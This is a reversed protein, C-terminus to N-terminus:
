AASAHQRQALRALRREAEAIYDRTLPVAERSRSLQLQFVMLRGNRFGCEASALYFEWMRCFREGMLECAQARHAQFREWWARLTEAYHLRLIEVDTIWLGAREAAPMVQSLAPIYGGPFIYRDMWRDKSARPDSLGIGSGISHILAVGEEELLAAIKAFYTDLNHQGVHELMGVSVIRDYREPEDRYDRLAFRVKDAVNHRTARTNAAALQEKSLTLGTVSAGSEEAITTALAGWGSGIDLVRCGPALLLKAMIHRMKAQQADELSEQGTRFYACSYLRDKDLFLDYLETPLDYHHEVNRRARHRNNAPTLKDGLRLLKPLLWNSRVSHMAELGTTAVLLFDRVNGQEVTLRGDMYAEGTALMPDLALRLPLLRDHLRIAVRPGAGGPGFRSQRGRADIITLTGGQILDPLLKDLLPLSARSRDKGIMAVRWFACRPRVGRSNLHKGPPIGRDSPADRRLSVSSQAYM